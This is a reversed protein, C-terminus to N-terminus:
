SWTSRSLPGNTTPSMPPTRHAHQKTWGDLMGVGMKFHMVSELYATTLREIQQTLSRQAKRLNTRRAQREQPLWAGDQARELAVALTEPHQLVACLDNWVVEDLQRM